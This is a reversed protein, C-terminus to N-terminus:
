LLSVYIQSTSREEHMFPLDYSTDLLIMSCSFLDSLWLSYSMDIVTELLFRMPGFNQNQIKACELFDSLLEFHSM